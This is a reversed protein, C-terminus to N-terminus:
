KLPLIAEIMFPDEFPMNTPQVGDFNIIFVSYAFSVVTGTRGPHLGNEKAKVRDGAKFMESWRKRNREEKSIFEVDEANM